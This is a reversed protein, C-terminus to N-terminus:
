FNVEGLSAGFRTEGRISDYDVFISLDFDPFARTIDARISQFKDEFFDYQPLVAIMYTDSLEYNAGLSLIKSEGAEVFRYEIFTSFRPTHNIEMGVSARSFGGLDFDVTGQSLFALSDSLQWEVSSHFFNGLQSYAPQWDYWQTYPYRETRDSTSFVVNTDVTLWNVAYWRGPGGRHTQLTNTMGVRVAGGTNMGDVVPDYNPFDEPEYNAVGYWVVAYPEMLHRMRHLGLFDSEVDNYVRQFQTDLKVGGSGYLRLQDSDDPLTTEEEFYGIVQGMGFPTVNLEDFKLPYALEQRTSVRNVWSRRMGNFQAANEILQWSPLPQGFDDLYTGSRLGNEAETGSPIAARLRSFRLDWSHTLTDQFYSDGYRQYIAEPFKETQYGQSAILWSNSLFDNLDYKALASLSDNEGQWNLYISTEYERRNRFDDPRWATVFTSDSFWSAQTQITWAPDLQLTNEWLTAYRIEEPVDQVIGTDTVQQGSDYMGYLDLAGKNGPRDIVMDFGLGGGRKTFGDADVTMDIGEPRKIGLLAYVDWTSEVMVGEYDGFGTRIGRLPVDQVSGRYHPWYMFPVGGARLTNDQADVLISSEVISGDEALGGPVRDITVARSGISLTPEFFASASVNVDQGTWRNASIQRMEAARAYVPTNSKRDYTRMVADVMVAQDTKFDYYMRPARVMYEDRDAEAIVNGELYVGRIADVSMQSRSMDRISGPELFVVAREASLRLEGTADAVGTPRYEVVVSGDAILVNEEEDTEFNLEDASFAVMGQPSRLWGSEQTDMSEPIRGAADAAVQLSGGPTPAWQVAPTPDVMQPVPQLVPKSNMLRAVYGSLRRQALDILADQGVPRVPYFAAANLGVKGRSSGTILLNRGNPGTGALSTRSTVEPLFVVIQNIEGDASPIRDLWVVAAEGEFSFDAIHIVVDGSLLLRKTGDVTWTWARLANLQIPGERPEVPLVLGGLRDGAMAPITRSPEARATGGLAAIVMGLVCAVLWTRGNVDSRRCQM